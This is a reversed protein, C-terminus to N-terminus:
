TWSTYVTNGQILAWASITKMGSIEGFIKLIEGFINKSCSDIAYFYPFMVSNQLFM